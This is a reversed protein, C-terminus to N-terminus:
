KSIDKDSRDSRDGRDSRDSRHSRDSYESRDSYDTYDTYDSYDSRDSHSDEADDADDADDTDKRLSQLEEDLIKLKENDSYSMWILTDVIGNVSHNTYWSPSESYHERLYLPCEANDMIKFIRKSYEDVLYQTQEM